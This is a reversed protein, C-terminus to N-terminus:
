GAEPWPDGRELVGRIVDLGAEMAEAASRGYTLFAGVSVQDTVPAAFAMYTIPEPMNIAEDAFVRYGLEFADARAAQIRLRSEDDGM